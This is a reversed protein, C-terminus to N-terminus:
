LTWINTEKSTMKIKILIRLLQTSNKREVQVFRLFNQKLKWVFFFMERKKEERYIVHKKNRETCHNSCYLSPQKKRRRSGLFTVFSM